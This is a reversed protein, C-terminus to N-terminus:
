LIKMWLYQSNSGALRCDRNAPPSPHPWARARAAVVGIHNNTSRQSEGPSRVRGSGSADAVPFRELALGSATSVDGETTLSIQIEGYAPLGEITSIFGDGDTDATAAPRACSTRGTSAATSTSHM